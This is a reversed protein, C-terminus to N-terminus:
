KKGFRHKKNAVAREHLDDAEIYKVPHGTGPAEEPLRVAVLLCVLLVLFVQSKKMKKRGIDTFPGVKNITKFHVIESLIIAPRKTNGVKRTNEVAQSDKPLKKMEM